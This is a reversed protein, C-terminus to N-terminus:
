AAGTARAVRLLRRALEHHQRMVKRPAGAPDSQMREFDAEVAKAWAIQEATPAYVENALALFRPYLVTAGDFGLQRSHVFSARAAAADDPDGIAPADIADWGRARAVALLKQRLWALQEDAVVSPRGAMIADLLAVSGTELCYDNPAVSLSIVFRARRAVEELDLLLGPTEVSLHIAVPQAGRAAIADEAALLDAVGYIHPLTIHRAGAALVAAVDAAFWPTGPGNVRVSVRPATFGGATLAAVVQSRAEAKAGDTFPVTDELDIVVIDAAFARAKAILAPAHGPVLATSRCPAVNQDPTAM